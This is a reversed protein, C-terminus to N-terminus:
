WSLRVFAALTLLTLLVVQLAMWAVFVALWGGIAIAKEAESAPLDDDTTLSETPSGSALATDEPTLELGRKRLEHQLSQWAEPRLKSEGERALEFLDATSYEAYRAALDDSMLAETDAPRDASRPRIGRM